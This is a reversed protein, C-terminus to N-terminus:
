LRSLHVLIMTCVIAFAIASIMAAGIIAVYWGLMDSFLLACMGALITIIGAVLIRKGAYRNIRYWTDPDKLSKEVRVGVLLNRPVKGLALLSGVVIGILGVLVNFLLIMTVSNAM